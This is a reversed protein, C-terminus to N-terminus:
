GGQEVQDLARAIRRALDPSVDLRRLKEKVLDLVSQEFDFETACVACTELHERVMGMEEASLERDLYDDLRRFTEECSMRTLDSM